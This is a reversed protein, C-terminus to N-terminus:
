DQAPKDAPKRDVSPSPKAASPKRWQEPWKVTEDWGAPEPRSPSPSATAGAAPASSSAGQAAASSRHRHRRRKPADEESWAGAREDGPSRIPPAILLACAFAMIAMMGGTRLPYDVLSHGLLLAIILSAARALSRDIELGERYSRRWVEAARWVVWIVFAGVLVPGVIGTELWLELFDNHAHNAYSGSILDGPKEFMAYVPVFAGLGAGFPMVAKAAEITNRALAIRADALPDADFRELVRYLAFQVAFIFALTTAGLMLRAPTVGTAARRDWQALAFAGFLAVITLTLGARSRAMAEAAILAVLVCFSALLTAISATEFKKRDHGQGITMANAATWAAALLVLSYLLAAFHNRNAFFGVTESTNTYEFFRLSSSPGEAVQMLGLFVSALGVGLAVLSLWRRESHNLLLAGLFVAFFSLLSLASLWTASPSMSLPAWPLDRGILKFAAAATERGPLSTWIAPPLPLLQALPVALIAACFALARRMERSLPTDLM